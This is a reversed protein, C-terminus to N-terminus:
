PNMERYYQLAYEYDEPTDVSLHFESTFVTYIPIGNEIFRLQELNERQELQGMNLNPYAALAAFNYLYIGHHGYYPLVKEPSNTYPILSRSFYIARNNLDIITKVCSPRLANEYDLHCIPTVLFKDEQITQAVQFSQRILDPSVFPQDAQVNIIYDYDKLDDLVSVIRETGSNCQGTKITRIQYTKFLSLVENSDSIVLTDVDAVKLCQRVVQEIMTYDGIKKLVKGPVRSSEVRAPIVICFKKSKM